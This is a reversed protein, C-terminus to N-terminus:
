RPTSSQGWAKAVSAVDYIDIFHNQPTMDAELLCWPPAQYWVSTVAALDAPGVIGSPTPITYNQGNGIPIGTNIPTGGAFDQEVAGMWSPLMWKYSYTTDRPYIVTMNGTASATGYVGTGLWEVMMGRVVGDSVPLFSYPTTYVDHGGGYVGAPSDTYSFLGLMGNRYYRGKYLTRKWAYGDTVGLSQTDNIWLNVATINAGGSTLIQNTYV